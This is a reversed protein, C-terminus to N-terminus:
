PKATPEDRTRQPSHRPGYSRAGARADASLPGASRSLALLRPRRGLPPPVADSLASLVAAGLRVPRTTISARSGSPRGSSGRREGPRAREGRLTHWPRGPRRGAQRRPTRQWSPPRRTQLGASPADASPGAPPNLGPCGPHGHRGEWLPAPSASGLVARAAPSRQNRPPAPRRCGSTGRPEASALRPRPLGPPARGGASHPRPVTEPGRRRRPTARAGPTATAESYPLGSAGRRRLPSGPRSGPSAEIPRAM